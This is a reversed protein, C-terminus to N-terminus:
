SPSLAAGDGNGADINQLYYIPGLHKMDQRHFFMRLSNQKLSLLLIAPCSIPHYPKMKKRYMLFLTDAVPNDYELM